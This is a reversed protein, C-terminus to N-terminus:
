LTLAGVAFRGDAASGWKRSVIRYPLIILGANPDEDSFCLYNDSLYFTGSHPTQFTARFPLFREHSM